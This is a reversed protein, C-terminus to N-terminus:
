SRRPRGKRGRGAPSGRTEPVAAPTTLPRRTTLQSELWSVLEPRWGYMSNSYLRAFQKGLQVWPPRGVDPAEENEFLWYSRQATAIELHPPTRFNFVKRVLSAAQEHKIVSGTRVAAISEIPIIFSNPSNLSAEFERIARESFVGDSLMKGFEGLLKLILKIDLKYVGLVNQGIEAATQIYDGALKASPDVGYPRATPSMFYVYKPVVVFKGSPRLEFFRHPVDTPVVSASFAAIPAIAPDSELYAGLEDVRKRAQWPLSEVDLQQKLGCSPCFKAEDPLSAGCAPCSRPTAKPM